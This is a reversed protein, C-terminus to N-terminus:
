GLHPERSGGSNYPHSKLPFREVHRSELTISSIPIRLREAEVAEGRCGKSEEWGPLLLIWLEQAAALMTFNYKEWFPADKPLDAIKALEHCHVIPSYIHYGIKLYHTMCQMAELYRQERVFPDKHSYPSALYIYGESPIMRMEKGKEM